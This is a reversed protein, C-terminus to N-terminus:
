LQINVMRRIVLHGALLAAGGAALMGPGAPHKWLTSLFEPNTAFMLAAVLLPLVSLVGGTMKGHATVARVEEELAFTERVTEALRGLVEGLNGGTRSQLRLAAAFLSVEVIPVREALNELTQDWSLGLRREEVIRSLEGSLPAPTEAAVLGLGSTINHGARLARALSDLAEPFQAKLRSLRRQRRRSVYSYPLWAIGAAGLPLLYWPLWGVRSLIAWAGIGALLMMSTLRGVTWDLNAQRLHAHLKRTFDFRVLVWAWFSLSSLAEDRLMRSTEPLAATAEGAIVNNSRNRAALFLRGACAAAFAAIFAVLFASPLSWGPM